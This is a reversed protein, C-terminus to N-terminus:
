PPNPRSRSPYLVRNVVDIPLDVAEPIADVAAFKWYYPDQGEIRTPIRAYKDSCLSMARSYWRPSKFRGTILSPSQLGPTNFATM